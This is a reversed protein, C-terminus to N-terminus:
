REEAGAIAEGREGEMEVMSEAGGVTEGAEVGPGAVRGIGDWARNLLNDARVEDDDEIAEEEEMDRLLHNEIVFFNVINM